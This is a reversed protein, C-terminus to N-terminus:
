TLSTGVIAWPCGAALADGGTRARTPAASPRNTSAPTKASVTAPVSPLGHYRTAASAATPNATEATQIATVLRRHRHNATAAAGRKKPPAVAERQAAPAPATMMAMAAVPAARAPTRPERAM